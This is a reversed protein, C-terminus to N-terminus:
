DSAHTIDELIQALCAGGARDLEIGWAVDGLRRPLSFRLRGSVRKKDSSMYAQIAAPELGPCRVPLDLNALCRALAEALGVQALGLQEALRAEAVLGIAVAEGHRLAFSSAAEIGHGITHGLNLVAREGREFPDANVHGVKVAAARVIGAELTLTGAALGAFLVPDGIVGAKVIEALGCRVEVPPLTALTHFDAAMLRPPHFAGVLNKGEPLDVGVKGGLGADAMALVTTPVNVWAVGRMYTAAVFGAVDGTVGGGVAVITGGRELGNAVSGQYLDRVSDLTKHAEGSPLALLPAALAQAMVAGHSPAITADCILVYPARLGKAAMWAPLQPSLDRGYLVSTPGLEFRVHSQGAEFCGIVGAAVAAVPQGATEVQYQFSAYLAARDKLLAALRTHTDGAVLPRAVADGTLREALVDFPATLAVLVGSRELRARTHPNLLAGGGTALVLGSREALEAYTEAERERFLGEEGAAFYDPVPRGWRTELWQDGDVFDLDLLRAVEAGVATKGAGPPGCLILNM